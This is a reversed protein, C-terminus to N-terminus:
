LYSLCHSTMLSSRGTSPLFGSHVLRLVCWTTELYPIGAFWRGAAHEGDCYTWVVAATLNLVHARDRAADFRVWENGVRALVVDGRAMPLMQTAQASM